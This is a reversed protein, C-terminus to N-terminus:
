WRSKLPVVEARLEGLSGVLALVKRAHESDPASFVEVCDSPGLVFGARWEIEPWASQAAEVANAFRSKFSGDDLRPARAAPHAILMYDHKSQNAQM